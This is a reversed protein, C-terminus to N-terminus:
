FNLLFTTQQMFDYLNYHRLDTNEDFVIFQVKIERHQFNNTDLWRILDDKLSYESLIFTMKWNADNKGRIIGDNDIFEGINAKMFDNLEQDEQIPEYISLNSLFSRSELLQNFDLHDYIKHDYYLLFTDTTIISIKSLQQKIANVDNTSEDFRLYVFHNDALVTNIFSLICLIFLLLKRM